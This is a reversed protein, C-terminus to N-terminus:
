SLEPNLMVIIVCYKHNIKFEDHHNLLLIYSKVYKQIYKANYVVIYWMHNYSVRRLYGCTPTLFFHKKKRSLLGFFLLAPAREIILFLRFARLGLFPAPKRFKPLVSIWKQAFRYFRQGVSLFCAFMPVARTQPIEGLVCRCTVGFNRHTKQGSKVFSFAGFRRFGLLPAPKRQKLNAFTPVARSNCFLLHTCFFTQM